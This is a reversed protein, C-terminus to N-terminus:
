KVFGTSIFTNGSIFFKLYEYTIIYINKSYVIKKDPKLKNNIRYFLYGITFLPILLLFFVILLVTM